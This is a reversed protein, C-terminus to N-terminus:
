YLQKSVESLVANLGFLFASAGVVIVLVYLTEIAAKKPEPWDILDIESLAGEVINKKEGKNRARKLAALKAIEEESFVENGGPGQKTTKSDQGEAMCVRHRRSKAHQLSQARSHICSQGPRAAVAPIM